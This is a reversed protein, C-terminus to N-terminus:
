QSPLDNHRIRKRAENEAHREGDCLFPLAGMVRQLLPSETARLKLALLTTGGVEKVLSVEEPFAFFESTGGGKRYHFVM